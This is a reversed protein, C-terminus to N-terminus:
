LAYERVLRHGNWAVQVVASPQVVEGGSCAACWGVHLRPVAEVLTAREGAIDLARMADVGESLANWNRWQESTLDVQHRTEFTPEEGPCPNTHAIERRKIQRFRLFSALPAFLLDRALQQLETEPLMGADFREIQSQSGELIVLSRNRLAVEPDQGVEARQRILAAVVSEWRSDRCELRKPAITVERERGRHDTLTRVTNADRMSLFPMVTQTLQLVSLQDLREATVDLTAPHGPPVTINLVLSM